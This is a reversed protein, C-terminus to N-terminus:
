PQNSSLQDPIQTAGKLHGTQWRWPLSATGLIAQVLQKWSVTIAVRPRISWWAWAGAALWLLASVLIMSRLGVVDALGAAAMGTVYAVDRVVFFVSNMRGRMERTTNRQIVLRRAVSYPANLLGTFAVLVVALPINASLAYYVGAAGMGAFSIAIWQREKIRGGIKMVALSGAVFALATLGEQIGYDLSTAHLSHLTFPLLLSNWLGFALFAPIAVWILARLSANGRVFHTGSQLNEIVTRVNTRGNARLSPISIRGICLASFLFSAADLYFAFALPLHSTIWGCLAFGIATSAFGSIAMLSNAASLEKESAIEPLTSEHAPNFFQGFTGSLMVVGYLWLSSRAALLPILFSLLARVLDSALMIKKRNFRDVIVGAFLGFALSPLVTAMLMLSVRLASGTLRYVLISAALTTVASGATSVLEGM